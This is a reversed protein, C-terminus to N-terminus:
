DSVEGHYRQLWARAIVLTASLSQHFQDLLPTLQALDSQDSALALELERSCDSLRAAGFYAMNGKLTHFHRRADERNGEGILQRGLDVPLLDDEVFRQVMQLVEQERKPKGKALGMLYDPNFEDERITPNSQSAKGGLYRQLTKLM